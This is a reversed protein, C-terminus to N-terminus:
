ARKCIAYATIQKDAGTDNVATGTWGDDRVHDSDGLDLPASAPLAGVAL